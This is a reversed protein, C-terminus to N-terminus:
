KILSTIAITLYTFQENRSTTHATDAHGAGMSAAAEALGRVTSDYPRLLGFMKTCFTVSVRKDADHAAQCTGAIAPPPPPPRLLPPRWFSRSRAAQAGGFAAAAVTVALLLACTRM